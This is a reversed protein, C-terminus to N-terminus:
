EQKITFLIPVEARFGLDQTGQGVDFILTAERKGAEHAKLRLLLYEVKQGSLKEAKEEGGSGKKLLTSGSFSPCCVSAELWREKNSEGPPRLQPSQVSLPHTVGAENLVRILFISEKDVVLEASRPGRAAKVRSEPNISVGVLCQANLLKQIREATEDSPKKEDKLLVRLERETEKPLPAKMKALTDLLEQCQHRLDRADVGEAVPLSSQGSASSSWFLLVLLAVTGSRGAYTPQTKWLADLEQMDEERKESSLCIQKKM